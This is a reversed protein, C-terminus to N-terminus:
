KWDITRIQNEKEKITVDKEIIDRYKEKLSNNEYNVQKFQNIKVIYLILIAILGLGIAILFIEM